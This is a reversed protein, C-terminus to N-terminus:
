LQHRRACISAVDAYRNPFIWVSCFTEPLSGTLRFYFNRSVMASVLYSIQDIEVGAELLGPALLNYNMMAMGKFPLIGRRGFLRDAAGTTM